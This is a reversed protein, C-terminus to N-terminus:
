CSQGFCFLLIYYSAFPVPYKDVSIARNRASQMASVSSLDKALQERAQQYQDLLGLYRELLRDLKPVLDEQM